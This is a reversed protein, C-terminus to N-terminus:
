EAGTDVLRELRGSFHTRRRRPDWAIVDAGSWQAPSSRNVDTSLFLRSPLAVPARFEVSWRFATSEGPGVEAIMRSALYMGHAIPRKMGLARASAVSLHIPNYDGSVAAYRRGTDGGLSWQRTPHGPLDETAREPRSHAATDAVADPGTLTTHIGKALYTSRGKWVTESASEVEVVVDVRTGSRHPLLNEVWATVSLREDLAIPRLHHVENRLHIMGLLPLPFDRRALVSVAVPFALTHIYGSPLFGTQPRGMLAQFQRVKDVSATLNDLRHRDEPLHPASNGRRRGPRASRALASAYLKALRPPSKLVQEM